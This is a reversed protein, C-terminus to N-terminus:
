ILILLSITGRVSEKRLNYLYNLRRPVLSSISAVLTIYFGQVYRLNPEASSIM